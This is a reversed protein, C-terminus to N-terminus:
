KIKFSEAEKKKEPTLSSTATPGKGQNRRRLEDAAAAKIFDEVTVQGRRGKISNKDGGKPMDFRDAIQNALTESFPRSGAFGLDDKVGDGNAVAKLEEDTADQLNTLNLAQKKGYDWFENAAAQDKNGPKPILGIGPREVPPAAAPPPTESMQNGNIYTTKGAGNYRPDLMIPPEADAPQAKPAAALLRGLEKEVQQLETAAIADKPDVALRAKAADRRENLSKSLEGERKIRADEMTARRAVSAADMPLPGQGQGPAPAAPVPANSYVPPAGAPPTNDEPAMPPPMQDGPLLDNQEMGATNEGSPLPPPAGVLYPDAGGAHSPLDLSPDNAAPGTVTAQYLPPQGMAIADANAKQQAATLARPRSAAGPKWFREPNSMREQTLAASANASKAAADRAAISSMTELYNLGGPKDQGVEYNFKMEALAFQAMQQQHQRERNAQEQAAQRESRAEDMAMKERALREDLNGKIAGMLDGFSPGQHPIYPIAM